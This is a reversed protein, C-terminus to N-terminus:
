RAAVPRREAAGTYRRYIEVRTKGLALMVIGSVLMGTGVALLSVAAISRTRNVQDAHRPIAAMLAGGLLPGISFSTLLVGGALVGVRGPRVRALLEGDHDEFSFRASPTVGDGGFYFTQGRTGDVVRDCPAACVAYAQQGHAYRPGRSLGTRVVYQSTVEMLRIPAERTTEIHLRPRGPGMPLEQAAPDEAYQVDLVQDWALVHRQGAASVIIVQRGPFVEAVTGRIMGGDRLTVVDAAPAGPADLSAVPVPAVSVPAAAVPAPEVAVVELVEPAPVAVTEPVPSRASAAQPGLALAAAVLTVLPRAVARRM